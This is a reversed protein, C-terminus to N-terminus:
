GHPSRARGRPGASESLAPAWPRPRRATAGPGSASPTDAPLTSATRASRPEAETIPPAAVRESKHGYLQQAMDRIKAEYAAIKATLTTLGQQYQANQQTLQAVSAQLAVSQQACEAYASDSSLFIQMWLLWMTMNM